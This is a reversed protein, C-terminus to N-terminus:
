LVPPLATLSDFDGRAPFDGNLWVEPSFIFVEAPNGGSNYREAATSQSRTGLSRNLKLMEALVAGVVTLRRGRCGNVSADVMNASNPAYSPTNAAWASNGCTYFRGQGDGAVPNAFNIDNVDGDNNLDDSQAVYLGELQTVSPHVYINGRVILRFSPIDDATNYAGPAYRIDGTIFVNGNVYITRSSGQALVGAGIFVIGSSQTTITQNAATTPNINNGGAGGNALAYYDPACTANERHM